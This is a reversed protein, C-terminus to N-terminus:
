GWFPGNPVPRAFEGLCSCILPLIMNQAAVPAEAGTRRTSLRRSRAVVASEWVRKSGQPFVFLGSKDSLGNTVSNDATNTLSIQVNPMVAGSPDTITGRVSITSTQALMPVVSLLFVFLASRLSRM